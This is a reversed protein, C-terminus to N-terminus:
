PQLANVTAKGDEWVLAGCAMEVEVKGSPTELAFPVPVMGTYGAVWCRRKPAAFLWAPAREEGPKGWRLCAGGLRIEGSTDQRAQPAELMPFGLRGAQNWRHLLTWEMLDIELGLEQGGRAYAVRWRRPRDGGYVFPAEAEDTLAGSAVARGFSRGDAYDSRAAMELYFGCQPKGKYFAGPWGMEWFPKELGLYNYIELVLDGKIERFRIPAGRGMDTRTLPRVATLISGSVIVAVEGPPLNAPLADVRREGVWIADVADCGTFIVAAKASHIGGLHSPPSYLGIARSGQQVGWFRGEDILNRSKTRDTAHYFDGLWKENLLYRTYIVGPKDAGPRLYHGMLVNSQGSLERSATGLSFSPAHFTTQTMHLPAFSTEDVQMSAPREALAHLVWAPLTGDTAWEHLMEIEPRTECAISPQYARGHPGAWRGTQPHLHLALRLGFQALAASALTRITEDTTLDALIKIARIDVATYTPSNFEYPTGNAATLQMWAVLKEYGRRALREDGLLQAGLCTNLVDLLTINTYVPLVDLREIEALGLWIADITRRRTAESLREGHVLMMPILHELNFEVANLDFVVRDEIMWYFNGYHADDPHREQCDLVVDLVKEALELDQPTGNAVLRRAFHAGKRTEHFVGNETTQSQLHTQPNYDPPLPLPTISPNM